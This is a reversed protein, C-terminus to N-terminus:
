STSNLPKALSILYPKYKMSALKTTLKKFVENNVLNSRVIIIFEFKQLALIMTPGGGGSFQPPPHGENKCAASGM